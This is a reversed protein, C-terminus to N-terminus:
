FWLYIEFLSFFYFFNLFIIIFFFKFSFEITDNNIFIIIDNENNTIIYNINKIESKIESKIENLNNKIKLIIKKNKFKLNKFKEIKESSFYIKMKKFFIFGCNLKMQDFEITGNEEIFDSEEKYWNNKENVIKEKDIMPIINEENENEENEENEIEKKKINKENEENEENEIEKLLSLEKLNILNNSNNINNNNNNLNNTITNYQNLVLDNESLGEVIFIEESGEDNKKNM